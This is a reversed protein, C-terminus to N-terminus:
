LCHAITKSASTLLSSIILGGGGLFRERGLELLLLAVPASSLRFFLHESRYSEESDESLHTKIIGMCPTRGLGWPNQRVFTGKTPIHHSSFILVLNPLLLLAPDVICVYVSFPLLVRSSCVCCPHSQRSHNNHHHHPYLPAIQELSSALATSSAAFPHHSFTALLFFSPRCPGM